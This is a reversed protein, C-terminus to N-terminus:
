LYKKLENDFIKNQEDYKILLNENRKLIIDWDNIKM